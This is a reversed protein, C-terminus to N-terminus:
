RLLCGLLTLRTARNRFDVVIRERECCVDRSITSSGGTEFCIKRHLALATCASISIHDIFNALYACPMVIVAVSLYTPQWVRSPVLPSLFIVTMRFLIVRESM